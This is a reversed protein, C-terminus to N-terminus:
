EVIKDLENSLDYNDFWEDLLIEELSPREFPTIVLIKRILACVSGSLHEPFSYIGKTIKSYLENENVAKFPFAGCLMTYLLIGLSWVDAYQAIYNQKQIIEPAMYSPTGCFFNHYKKKTTKVGFGFDILKVKNHEQIIINELKIDRHCIMRLHCYSLAKVIQKFIGKCKEEPIQKDKHKKLFTLLSEGTLLEM